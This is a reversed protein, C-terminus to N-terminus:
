EEMGAPVPQRSERNQYAEKLELARDFVEQPVVDGRIRPYFSRTLSMWAGKQEPTIDHVTLGHEEMVRVAREMEPILTWARGEVERSVRLLTAHHVPPISEWAKLSIIIAGMLVGWKLNLMHPAVAFWQFSLAALPTTSIADILGTQLAPLVDMSALPVPQFGGKKWLEIWRYDGAWNFLRLARLDDPTYVAERTFWYVWGVDAWGLLKFGKGELEKKLGPRLRVRIYNLEELSEVLLPVFFVKMSASITALGEVTVAAAQLQGIRIKRIVDREDGAVGGPYIRLVVDGGTSDEWGQAMELLLEHWPSGEPALTAMKIVVPEDAFLPLVVTALAAAFLIPHSPRDTSSTM